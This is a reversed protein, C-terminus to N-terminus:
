CGWDFIDKIINFTSTDPVGSCDQPPSLCDQGWCCPFLFLEQKFKQWKQVRWRQSFPTLCRFRCLYLPATTLCRFRCLYLPAWAADAALLRRCLWCISKWLLLCLSHISQRVQVSPLTPRGLSLPNVYLLWDALSHELAELASESLGNCIYDPDFYNGFPMGLGFVSRADRFGESNRVLDEGHVQSGSFLIFLTKGRERRAIISM